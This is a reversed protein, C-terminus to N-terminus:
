AHVGGLIASPRVIIPALHLCIADQVSKAKTPKVIPILTLIKELKQVIHEKIGDTSLFANIPLRLYSVSRNELYPIKKNSLTLNPNRSKGTQGCISIAACEPVKAKLHSWDLWRQTVHFMAQCNTKSSTTLCTDDAYQLIPMQDPPTFRGSITALITVNQHLSTSTFTSSSM